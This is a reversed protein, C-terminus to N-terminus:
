SNEGGAGELEAGGETLHSKLAINEGKGERRKSFHALQFAQERGM